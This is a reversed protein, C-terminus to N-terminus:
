AESGSGYRPTMRKCIENTRLNHSSQTGTIPTEHLSDPQNQTDAIPRNM